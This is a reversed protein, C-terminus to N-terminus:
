RTTRSQPAPRPSASHAAPPLAPEQTCAIRCSRATRACWPRSQCGAQGGSLDLAYGSGSCEAKGTAANLDLLDGTIPSFMWDKDFDGSLIGGATNM